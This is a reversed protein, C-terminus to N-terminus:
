QVQPPLCCEPKMAELAQYDRGYDAAVPTTLGIRRLNDKGADDNSMTMLAAVVKRRVDVPVRPHVALPHPATPLTTKIVTLSERVRAPERGLSTTIGGGAAVDGMLVARYVAEHSNLYLPKFSVGDRELLTRMLVSAAFSDPSPFAITQGDLEKIDRPTRDARSVLVGVLPEEGNRLLPIYGHSQHARVMLLPNMYAFDPKGQLLHEGFGGISNPVHLRLCVGSDKELRRVVPLWDEIHTTPVKHPVASVLYTRSCDAQLTGWPSALGLCVALVRWLGCAHTGGPHHTVAIAFRRAGSRTM